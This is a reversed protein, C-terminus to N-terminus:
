LDENRQAKVAEARRFAYLVEKSSSVPVSVTIGADEETEAVVCGKSRSTLQTYSRSAIDRSSM